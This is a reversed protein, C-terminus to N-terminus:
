NPSFSGSPIYDKLQEKLDQMTFPKAMFGDAGARIAADRDEPLAKASVIHIPIRQGDSNNRLWRLLTLGDVEPMMVDLLIVTPTIQQMILMAEMANCAIHVEIGIPALAEKIVRAYAEEDDILLIIPKSM